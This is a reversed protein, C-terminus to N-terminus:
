PAPRTERRIVGAMYVIQLLLAPIFPLLRSSAPLDILWLALLGQAVGITCLVATTRGHGVGAHTLRQYLHSRHAQTIKEGRRWRRIATYVTDFLFHFLLLPVVFVFTGSADYRAVLVGLAALGFGLFQSGVDGMFIRAPPLNFALFGLSAVAFTSALAAENFRELNLTAIALFAAAIVATGGALGDIGDMFNYANTLGVMWILTLATGAIGLEVPGIGPVYLTDIVLGMRIAVLAAAVQVGLKVQFPQPRIDDALGGAAAILSGALVALFAGDRLVAPHGIVGLVVIGFVCAAVIGLGGSRPTPASHSSRANPLDLFLRRRAVGYTVAAAIVAVAACYIFITLIM